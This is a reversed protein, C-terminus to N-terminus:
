EGPCGFLVRSMAAVHEAAPPDVNALAIITVGNGCREMAANSGPLGGAVGFGTTRGLGLTGAAAGNVYRLLDDVTSVGGGAPSPRGPLLDINSRPALLPGTPGRRTYGTARLPVIEDVEWSGTDKMSLPAYIRSSVFDYYSAGSVQEVILGLVLYGANSYRQGKGPEFELPKEVFLPVFDELKRLSGRPTKRFTEGFFDGMGSEHELLQAITIRDAGAGAYSPLHKAITDGTSLKGEKALLMIADRTFSKNISGINFKTEPTNAVSLERNALGWAKHYVPKGERAVLVAGAFLERKSLEALFADLAALRDVDSMGDRLEPRPWDATPDPGRRGGIEVRQPQAAAISALLLVAGFVAPIRVHAKM